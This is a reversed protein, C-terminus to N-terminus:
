FIKIWWCLMMQVPHWDPTVIRGKQRGKAGIQISEERM